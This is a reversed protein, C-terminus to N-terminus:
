TMILSDLLLKIKCQLSPCWPMAMSSSFILRDLYHARSGWRSERETRSFRFGSNRIPSSIKKQKVSKLKGFQGKRSDDCWTTALQPWPRRVRHSLEVKMHNWWFAVVLQRWNTPFHKKNTAKGVQLKLSFSLNFCGFHLNISWVTQYVGM